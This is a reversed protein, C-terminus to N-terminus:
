IIDQLVAGHKNLTPRLKNCVKKQGTSSRACGVFVERVAAAAETDTFISKLTVLFVGPALKADSVCTVPWDIEMLKWIIHWYMSYLICTTVTCVQKTTWHKGPDVIDAPRSDMSEIGSQMSDGGELYAMHSKAQGIVNFSAYEHQVTIVCTCLWDILTVVSSSSDLQLM